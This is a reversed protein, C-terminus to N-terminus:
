PTLQRGLAPFGLEVLARRYAVAFRDFPLHLEETLDLPLREPRQGEVIRQDPAFVADEVAEFGPVDVESGLPFGTCWFM